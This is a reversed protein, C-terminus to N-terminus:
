GHPDLITGTLQFTGARGTATVFLHTGDTDDHGVLEATVVGATVTASLRGSWTGEAATITFSGFLDGFGMELNSGLLLAITGNIDGTVDGTRPNNRIHNVGEDDTWVREADGPLDPDLTVTAAVPQIAAATAVSATAAGLPALALVALGAITKKTM